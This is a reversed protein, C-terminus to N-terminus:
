EELLGIKDFEIQQIGAKLAPSSAALKFGKEEFGEFMPDVALGSADAGLARMGELYAQCFGPDEPCWYLNTDVTCDKILAPGMPHDAPFEKVFLISDNGYDEKVGTHFCINRTVTAHLPDNAMNQLTIYADHGKKDGWPYTGSQNGIVFNNIVLNPNKIRIGGSVFNYVINKEFVTGFSWDDARIVTHVGTSYIDHTYNNRVMNREGNGSLYIANGDSIKMVVNYIENYEILNKRAHLYPKMEDPNKYPQIDDHIEDWRMSGSIEREYPRTKAFYSPRPGSIVMASYPVDHILNHAVRNEGSQWLFMGPSHWYAEGINHIRNNIIENQKNVNKTGAGYGALLVGIGGLHHFHNNVIKNLICHYDLRVGVGGSNVFECNDVTCNEAGDLRVLANSEDYMAWDHQLGIDDKDWTDRDGRTFVIDRIEINRVFKENEEDGQLRIIERTLPYYIGPAPEDGEPWYYLKGPGSHLVWEGPEDLHAIANEVWISEELNANVWSMTTIPYTCLISTYAINQEEDVSELPLINMTWPRSPRVVLEIDDLHEWNKIVEGPFHVEDLAVNKRDEYSLTPLFGDSIARKLKGEGKFLLKFKFDGTKCEPIEAVWTKGRSKDPLADPYVEAKKWREVKKGASWVVKENERATIVLKNDGSPSFTHDIVASEAFHYTGERFIIFIDNDHGKQLLKESMELAKGLSALPEELSGKNNDNGQLSVYIEKGSRSCSLNFIILGTIMATFLRATLLKM